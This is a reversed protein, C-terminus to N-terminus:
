IITNGKTTKEIEKTPLTYRCRKYNNTLFHHKLQLSEGVFGM